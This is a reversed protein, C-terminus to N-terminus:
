YNFKIHTVRHNRYIEDKSVKRKEVKGKRQKRQYEM